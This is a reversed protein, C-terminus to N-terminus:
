FLAKKEAVLERITSNRREIETTFIRQLEENERKLIEVTNYSSGLEQSASV